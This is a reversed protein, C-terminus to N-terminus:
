STQRVEESSSRRLAGPRNGALRKDPASAVELAASRLFAHVTMEQTKAAQEIADLEDHPLRLEIISYGSPEAIAEEPCDWDWTEPDMLFEDEADAQHRKLQPELM